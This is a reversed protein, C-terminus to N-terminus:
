KLQFANQFESDQSLSQIVDQPNDVKLKNLISPLHLLHITIYKGEEKKLERILCIGVYHKRAINERDRKAKRVTVDQTYIEKIQRYRKSKKLEKNFSVSIRQVRKKLNGVIATWKDVDYKNENNKKWDVYKDPTPRTKFFLYLYTLTEMRYNYCHGELLNNIVTLFLDLQLKYHFKKPALQIYKHAVRMEIKILKLVPEILHTHTQIKCLNKCDQRLKYLYSKALDKSSQLECLEKFYRVIADAIINRRYGWDGKSLLCGSSDSPYDLIGTSLLQKRTM